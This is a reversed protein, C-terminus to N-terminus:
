LFRFAGPVAQDVSHRRLYANVVNCSSALRHPLAAATQGAQAM